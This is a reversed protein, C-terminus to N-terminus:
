QKLAIEIDATFHERSSEYTQRFAVTPMRGREVVGDIVAARKM